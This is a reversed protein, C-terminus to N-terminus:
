LGLLVCQKGWGCPSSLVSLPDSMQVGPFLHSLALPRLLSGQDLPLTPRWGLGPPCWLM